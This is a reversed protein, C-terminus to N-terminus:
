ECPPPIRLEELGADLGFYPLVATCMLEQVMEATLAEPGAEVGAHMRNYVAGATVEAAKRPVSDPDDLERRALDILETLRAIGQERAARTGEDAFPAELVMERARVPDERLFRRMEYAVARLGDRWCSEAVYAAAVREVLEDTGAQVRAAFSGGTPAADGAAGAPGLRRPTASAHPEQV